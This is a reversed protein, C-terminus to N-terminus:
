RLLACAERHVDAFVKSMQQMDVAGDTPFAEKFRKEYLAIAADLAESGQSSV